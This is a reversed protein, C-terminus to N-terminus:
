AAPGAIMQAFLAGAIKEPSAQYQGSQIAQRLAQVREQRIEPLHAAEAALAQVQVHAGSLQAQDEGLASSASSTGAAGASQPNARNSEAIAQPEQHFDIRM